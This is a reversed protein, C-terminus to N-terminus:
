LAISRRLGHAGTAAPRDGCKGVVSCRPGGAFPLAAGRCAPRRPPWGPEPWRPLASGPFPQCRKDSPRYDRDPRTTKLRCNRVM